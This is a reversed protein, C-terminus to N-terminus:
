IRPSRDAELIAECDLPDTKNRMRYPKINATAVALARTRDNLPPPM